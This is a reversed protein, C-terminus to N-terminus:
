AWNRTTAAWTKSSSASRVLYGQHPALGQGSRSRVRNREQVNVTVIVKRPDEGPSLGLNVDDFIGLNFVRQLDSQVTNRNFVEGPQLSLERTVIYDHTRGEVV